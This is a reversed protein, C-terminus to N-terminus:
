HRHIRQQRHGVTIVRGDLDEVIYCNMLDGLRDVIESGLESALRKRAAKDFFRKRADHAYELAGFEQLWRVIIPPIGRQQRRVSAHRTMDM